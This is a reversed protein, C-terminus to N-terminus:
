AALETEVEPEASQPFAIVNSPPGTAELDGDGAFAGVAWSSGAYLLVACVAAGSIVLGAAAAGTMDTAGLTAVTAAPGTGAVGLPLLGIVGMSLLLLAVSAPDAPLGFASLVVWTRALAASTFGVVIATLRFRGVPTALIRLGAALPRNQFRWCALRLAILAGLGTLLLLGPVWAPIAPVATAAVGALVASTCIELGLIPADALAVQM